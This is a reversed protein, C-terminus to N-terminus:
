SPIKNKNKALIVNSNLTEEVKKIISLNDLGAVEYMKDPTDQDIFIDPLIMSRFKLGTDFVGRESLLQMVHSGFGGVSGEELTILVEHNTAVEMILKEDLPKAFRADIITCDIGKLSLQKSAKKCEELRTGFNLLAVKKGEKIIRAKGIILKEKISPLEVGIGNGRPYRFASPRDNIEVSTNIMKVLEAEDSAAMVVFNPLTSLYTIDFSGAHTPGDAGVLGARDIAFRVPLSQLAVDHVVQDYARQLFTSYIAAYPKYGETALGAAFTVAHQEAIGVDFTRDPFKKEFLNLGTGSPMAGTIGVIKTDQEAHKILTEAFVKTYSPTNSKSKSQEGTSINFKSVGHYKDGSDEAPKYGKGKQTRVHVLVPGQHNSKKVNEFIQVLNEVDHGDIPGIYYFGLESFLTGGTVMNRLMDEAKGAKQSFRKSFASIVMKITERFSFYLKGSLLNALYKSMAGVPRAISMDNDNLVVILNSKLAGANNMAEYAMGASMAGDGIVAIVNNRNNSLKKAVSMGLTSSISTSSHAAGFPDYESESRKTFGSLGGGKRLTKIRDRRGTIIKHPYCQHSVDWVLKDKPTDFVYHLAITLEVVGLGAGLHGGTESVVDILEDRLEDSIQKLNEKKFKRLDSPFNIQKILRTM